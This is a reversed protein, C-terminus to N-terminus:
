LKGSAKKFAATDGSELAKIAAKLAPIKKKVKKNDSGMAKSLTSKMRALLEKAKDSSAWSDGDSGVSPSGDDPVFINKNAAKARRWVGEKGPPTVKWKGDGLDQNSWEELALLLEDMAM